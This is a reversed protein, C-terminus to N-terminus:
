LCFQNKSDFNISMSLEFINANEMLIEDAFWQIAKKVDDPVVFDRGHIAAFAKSAMLVAIRSIEGTSLIRGTAIPEQTVDDCVM